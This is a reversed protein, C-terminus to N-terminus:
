LGGKEQDHNDLTGMYNSVQSRLFVEIAESTLSKELVLPYGGNWVKGAFIIGSGPLLAVDLFLLMLVPFSLRKM